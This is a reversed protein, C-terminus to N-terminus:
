LEDILKMDRLFRVFVPELGIKQAKEKEQLTFAFCNYKSKRFAEVYPSPDLKVLACCIELKQEIDKARRGTLEDVASIPKFQEQRFLLLIAEIIEQQVMKIEGKQPVNYYSKTVNVITDCKGTVILCNEDENNKPIRTSNRIKKM